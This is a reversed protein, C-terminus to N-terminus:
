ICRDPNRTRQKTTAHPLLLLNPKHMHTRLLAHCSSSEAIRYIRSSYMAFVASLLAALFGRKLTRPLIFVCWHTLLSFAERSLTTPLTVNRTHVGRRYVPVCYWHLWHSSPTGHSTRRFLWTVLTRATILQRSTRVQLNSNRTFRM